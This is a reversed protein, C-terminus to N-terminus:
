YYIFTITNYKTTNQSQTILRTISTETNTCEVRYKNNVILLTINHRFNCSIQHHDNDPEWKSRHQINKM